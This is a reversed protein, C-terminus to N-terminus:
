KKLCFVAYSIAVHSSNLRTSKRDVTGCYETEAIDTRLRAQRYHFAFTRKEFIKGADIRERYCELRVIHILDDVRDFQHSGNKSSDIQLINRCRSTKFNLRSQAALRIDRHEM